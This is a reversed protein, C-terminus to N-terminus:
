ESTGQTLLEASCRANGRCANDKYLLFLMCLCILPSGHSAIVM